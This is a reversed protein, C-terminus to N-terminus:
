YTAEYKIVEYVTNKELEKLHHNPKRTNRIGFKGIKVTDIVHWDDINRGEEDLRKIHNIKVGILCLNKRM